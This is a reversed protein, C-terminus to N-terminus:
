TKSRIAEEWGGVLTDAILRENNKVAPYLFPKAPQGNVKQFDGHKFWGYAEAAAPDIMDKHIWWPELSYTVSVDPSTLASSQAGEQGTGFEIYLAYEKNTGIHATISDASKDVQMEISQTLEGTSYKWATRSTNERAARWVVQGAQSVYTEANVIDKVKKLDVYLQGIKKKSM